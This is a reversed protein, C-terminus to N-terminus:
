ISELVPESAKSAEVIAALQAQQHEPSPDHLPETADPRRYNAEDMYQTLPAVDIKEAPIVDEYKLTEGGADIHKKYDLSAKWHAPMESPAIFEIGLEKELRREEQRSEAYARGTAPSVGKRWRRKDEVFYPVNFVRKVNHLNETLHDIRSNCMLCPAEDPATGIPLQVEICLGTAECRYEYFAM